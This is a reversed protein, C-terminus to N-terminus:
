TGSADNVIITKLISNIIITLPFTDSLPVWSLPPFSYCFLKSANSVLFHDYNKLILYSLLRSFKEKKDKKINNKEGVPYVDKEQSLYIVPITSSWVKQRLTQYPVIPNTM